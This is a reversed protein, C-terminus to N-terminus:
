NAGLRPVKWGGATHSSAITRGISTVYSQVTTSKINRLIPEIIPWVAAVFDLWSGNYVNKVVEPVAIKSMLAGVITAGIASVVDGIVPGSIQIPFRSQTLLGFAM